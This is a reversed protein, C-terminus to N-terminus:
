VVSENIAVSSFLIKFNNNIKKLGRHELVTALCVSLPDLECCHQFGPPQLVQVSVLCCNEM